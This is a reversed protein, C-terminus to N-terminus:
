FYFNNFHNAYESYNADSLLSKGRKVLRREHIFEFACILADPADDKKNKNKGAFAVTQRLFEIGEETDSINDAFCIEQSEWARQINKALEDVHYRKYELPKFPKKNIKCWHRVFETWNSEQSVNGDQAIGRIHQKYEEAINYVDDLLTNSSSYSKCKIAPIYYKGSEPSYLLVVVATTDGMGKKSLNPDYYIIGRCDGPLFNSDYTTLFKSKLVFGEPPVPNQQFNSQWDSEDKPDLIARLEAESNAKFRQAWLAGAKFKFTKDGVKYQYATNSWAPFSYINWSDSLLGKEKELKIRNLACARDFNNALIIFTNKKSELSLYAEAIKKIRMDVVDSTLSSELTEIDDGLLSTPRAFRKTTGRVSRGESFPMVFRWTAPAVGKLTRFQLRETNKVAFDVDYDFMLRDNEEILARVDDLIDRAKDLTESYTGSMTHKGTLLGWIFVKKGTATKAHKRAGFIIHVGNTVSAHAILAHMDCPDSYDGSYVEPPFYTTDFFSFDDQSRKVRELRKKETANEGTWPPAPKLAKEKNLDDEFKDMFVRSLSFSPDKIKVSKVM